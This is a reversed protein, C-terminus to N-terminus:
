KKVFVTQTPYAFEIGQKNFEEFISYNIDNKIAYIKNQDIKNAMAEVKFNISFDGFNDFVVMELDINKHKKVISGIIDPINKLKNEPTEYTVGIIFSIKRKKKKLKKFNQVVQDTLKKNAIILEQGEKTELRTTKIGIKRVTGQTKENLGIFDGVVFPKDILISFSSFIDALINKSALALALGGIGLGAILSNVEVGINSLIMLIGVIWVAGKLIQKLFKLITKQSANDRSTRKIQKDVIYDVIGLLVSIAQAVLVIIVVALIIKGATAPINLNRTALYLAILYYVPPKINNISSLTFDDLDTKTKQSLRKLRHLIIWFTIKFFLIVGIFILLSIALQFSDNGFLNIEQLIKIIEAIM